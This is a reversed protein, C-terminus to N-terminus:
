RHHARVARRAPSSESLMVKVTKTTASGVTLASKWVLKETRVQAEVPGSSAKPMAAGNKPLAPSRKPWRRRYRKPSAPAMTLATRVAVAGLTPMSSKARARSPTCPAAVPVAEM